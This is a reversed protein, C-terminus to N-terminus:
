RVWRMGGGAPSNSGHITLHCRLCDVRSTRSANNDYATGPHRSWDHCNQCLQPLRENLLKAHNSGHSSHCTLCNEAVPPHEWVYPGRKDAHCKFCLQQSDDAKVMSKNLSGHPSHCDSCGVKGELIPHHSRKNAEIKIDRHCGFCVEPENPKQRGGAHLDHCSDCSVGNRKHLGFDWLDMGPTREHCVLCRASKAQPDTEKDFTFIEVDRGGGEEVHLAGAGHCTECADQLQPGKIAEKFHVSKSYSDYQEEHCEKCTEAGIFGTKEDAEKPETTDAIAASFSLLLLSMSLLSIIRNKRKMTDGYKRKYYNDAFRFMARRM